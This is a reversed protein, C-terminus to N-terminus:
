DEPSAEMALEPRHELEAMAIAEHQHGGVGGGVDDIRGGPAGNSEGFAAAAAAAACKGLRGPEAMVRVRARVLDGAAEDAGAVAHHRFGGGGPHLEAGDAAIAADGDTRAPPLDDGVRGVGDEDPVGGGEEPAGEEEGGAVVRRRPRRLLAPQQAEAQSVLREADDRRRRWAPRREEVLGEVQALEVTYQAQGVGGAGAVLPRRGRRRHHDPHRLVAHARPPALPAHERRRAHEDRDRQKMMAAASAAPHDALSTIEQEEEAVIVVSFVLASDSLPLLLFLLHNAQIAHRVM